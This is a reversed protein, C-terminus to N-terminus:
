NRWTQKTITDFWMEMVYRADPVARFQTYSYHQGNQLWTWFSGFGYHYCSDPPWPEKAEKAWKEVLSPMAAEAECKKM